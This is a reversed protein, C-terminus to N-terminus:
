KRLNEKLEQMSAETYRIKQELKELSCLAGHKKNGSLFPYEAILEASERANQIEQQAIYAMQEMLFRKKFGEEKNSAYRRRYWRKANVCTILTNTLLTCIAYLEAVAGNETKMNGLISAAKDFSEAAKLLCDVELTIDKKAFPYSYFDEEALLQEQRKTLLPFAPGYLFPGEIDAQSPLLFNVGDSLKKFVFMMKETNGYHQGALQQICVGAESCPSLLQEKSFASIISPFFGYAGTEVTGAVSLNKLADIRLLWQMMAPIYPILGFDDTRGSACTAAWVRLGKEQAARYEKLFTESAEALALTNPHTKISVDERTLTQGGDFSALVIMPEPLKKILNLKDTEPVDSWASIDLVLEAKPHEARVAQSIKLLFEAYEGSFIHKKAVARGFLFGDFGMGALTVFVNPDECAFAIEAFVLLGREHALSIQPFDTESGDATILIGNYGHHLILNLYEKPYVNEGIGSSVLRPFVVPSYSHQKKELYPGGLRNMLDEARFVAQVVAAESGGCFTVSSDSVLIEYANELEPRISVSFIKETEEGLVINMSEQLYEKFDLLALAAPGEEPMKLCWTNDLTVCNIRRALIKNKVYVNIFHSDM